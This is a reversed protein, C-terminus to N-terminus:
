GAQEALHHILQVGGPQQFSKLLAVRIPLPHHNLLRKPVVQARRLQEVIVQDPVRALPLNKTDVMVEALLSHLIDHHEPEGVGDELLQPIALRDLMHLNGHTLIDAHATAAPIKLLGARQPVHHLIM